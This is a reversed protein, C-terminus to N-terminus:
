GPRKIGLTDMLELARPNNLLKEIIINKIGQNDGEAALVKQQYDDATLIGSEKLAQEYNSRYISGYESVEAKLQAFNAEVEKRHQTAPMNDLYAQMAKRDKSSLNGDAMLQDSMSMYSKSEEIAADSYSLDNVEPLFDRYWSPMRYNELGQLNNSSSANGTSLVVQDKNGASGGVEIPNEAPKHQNNLSTNGSTYLYTNPTTSIIMPQNRSIPTLFGALHM